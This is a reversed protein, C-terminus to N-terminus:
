VFDGPRSVHTTDVPRNFSRQPVGHKEEMRRLCADLQDRLAYGDGIWVCCERGNHIKVDIVARDNQIRHGFFRITNQKM